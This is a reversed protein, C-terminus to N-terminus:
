KLERKKQYKVPSNNKFVRFNHSSNMLREAIDECVHMCRQTCGRCHLLEGLLNEVGVM